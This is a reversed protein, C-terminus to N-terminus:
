DKLDNKIDSYAFFVLSAGLILICGSQVYHSIKRYLKM